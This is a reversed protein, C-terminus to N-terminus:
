PTVLSSPLPLVKQNSSAPAGASCNAGRLPPQVGRKISVSVCTRAAPKAIPKRRNQVLVCVLNGWLGALAAIGWPAAPGMKGFVSVGLGLIGALMVALCLLQALKWKRQTNM